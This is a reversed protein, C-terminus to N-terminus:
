PDTSPKGTVGIADVVGNDSVNMSHFLFFANM